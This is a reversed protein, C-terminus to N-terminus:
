TLDIQIMRLSDAYTTDAVPANTINVTGTYTLDGAPATVPDTASYSAVFTTPIFGPAVDSWKILRLVEMREQLIQTARLNERAVRIVAFGSSIGAYLSIVMFALLTSAVMVEVLTHGNQKHSLTQKATQDFAAHKDNKRNM